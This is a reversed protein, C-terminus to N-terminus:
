KKFNRRRAGKKARILIEVWKADPDVCVRMKNKLTVVIETRECHFGGPTYTLRQIFKPRIFSSSTRICQCRGQTGPIPFGQTAMVCLLLILVTIPAARAMERGSQASIDLSPDEEQHLLERQQIWNQWM